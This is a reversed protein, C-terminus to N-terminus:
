RERRAQGRAARPALAALMAQVHPHDDPLGARRLVALARESYDHAIEREGLTRYCAGLNALATGQGELLGLEEYVALSRDLADIALDLEGLARLTNGLNGLMTAQGARRGLDEHIALARRFYGAAVAQEGIDRFCLGLGGLVAARGDLSGLEEHIALARQLHDIAGAVDGTRRCALGVNGLEDAFAKRQGAIEAIAAARQHHSLATHWEGLAAYCRGLGGLALAQGERWRKEEAIILAREFCSTAEAVDGLSCRALGLHCLVAAAEVGEPPLAALVRTAAAVIEAYRGRRDLVRLIPSLAQWAGAGDGRRVRRHAVALIEDADRDLDGGGALRAEAWAEHAVEAAREGPLTSLLARVVPHLRFPQVAEPNWECISQEALGELAMSAEDARVGAVVGVVEARTAVGCAALALIARREVGGLRQIPAHFAATLAREGDLVGIPDRDLREILAEHSVGPRALQRALARVALPLGAAARGLRDLLADPAGALAPVAERLHARSAAADWPFVRIPRARHGLDEHLTLIRSTVVLRSASEESPVPFSRVSATGPAVGDIVLLVRRAEIAARVAACAEDESARPGLDAGFRRAVRALEAPLDAADIWASEDFLARAETAVLEQVLATKGVGGLGGVVVGRVDPDALARRLAGMADDRGTFCPVRSAPQAGPGEFAGKPARASFAPRPSPVRVARAGPLRLGLRLDSSLRGDRVVCPDAVFRRRAASWRRPTVRLYLEGDPARVVEALSWGLGSIEDHAEARAALGPPGGAAIWVLPGDAFRAGSRAEDADVDDAHGTLHVHAHAQM